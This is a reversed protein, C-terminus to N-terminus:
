YMQAMRTRRPKQNFLSMAMDMYKVRALFRTEGLFWTEKCLM